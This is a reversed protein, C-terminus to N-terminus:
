KEVKSVVIDSLVALGAAQEIPLGVLTYITAYLINTVTTVALMQIEYKTLIGDKLANKLYGTVNRLIAAGFGATVGAILTEVLM